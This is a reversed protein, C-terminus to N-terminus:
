HNEGLGTWKSFDFTFAPEDSRTMADDETNTSGAIAEMSHITTEVLDTNTQVFGYDPTVSIIHEKRDDNAKNKKLDTTAEGFDAKIDKLDTTTQVFDAKTDKLHTTAQVFDAKTDKLDTTTTQVIDATTDKLDTITQVFDANTDKLDTTAQDFDAKTSMLDITTQVSDVITEKLDMNNTKASDASIQSIYTQAESRAKETESCKKDVKNELIDKQETFNVGPSEFFRIKQQFSESRRTDTTEM